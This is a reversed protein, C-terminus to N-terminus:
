HLWDVDVGASKNIKQGNFPAILANTSKNIRLQVEDSQENITRQDCSSSIEKRVSEVFFSAFSFSFFCPSPFFRCSFANLMCFMVRHCAFLLALAAL